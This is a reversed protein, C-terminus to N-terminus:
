CCGLHYKGMDSLQTIELFWLPFTSCSLCGLQARAWAPLQKQLRGEPMLDVTIDLAADLLSKLCATLEPLNCGAVTLLPIDDSKLQEEQWYSGSESSGTTM